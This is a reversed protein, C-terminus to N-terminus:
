KANGGSRRMDMEPGRKKLWQTFVSGIMKIQSKLAQSRSPFGMIPVNHGPPYVLTPKSPFFKLNANQPFYHATLSKRSKVLSTPDLAGHVLTSSWIVIDGRKILLPTVDDSHESEYTSMSKAFGEHDSYRTESDAESFLPGDIHSRPLVYFPGAEISIDELAFWVGVVGGYPDTDLYYTDQHPLTGTSKDFYMSQWIGHADAVGTAEKVSDLVGSHCIIDAVSHRVTESWPYAHPNQISEALLGDSNYRLPEFTHTHQTFIHNFGRKNVSVNLAELYNKILSDPIVDSVVVYGEELYKNRLQKSM